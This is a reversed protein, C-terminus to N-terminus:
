TGLSSTAAAAARGRARTLVVTEGSTRARRDTVELKLDARDCVFDDDKPDADSSHHWRLAVRVDRATVLTHAYAARRTAGSKRFTSWPLDFDAGYVQRLEGLTIREDGNPHLDPKTSKKAKLSSTPCPKGSNPALQRPQSTGTPESEQEESCEDELGLRRKEDAERAQRAERKRMRRLINREKRELFSRKGRGPASDSNVTAAVKRTM